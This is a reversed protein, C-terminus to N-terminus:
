VSMPCEHARRMVACFSTYDGMALLRRLLRDAETNRGDLHFTRAYDFLEEATCDLEDLAEAIGEEVLSVYRGHLDTWGLQQEGDATYAAFEASHADILEDLGDIRAVSRLVLRLAEALVESGAVSPLTAESGDSSFFGAAIARQGELEAALAGLGGPADGVPDGPPAAVFAVPENMDSIDVVFRDGESVGDPLVVGCITQGEHEVDISSGPQVGPPCVVDIRGSM